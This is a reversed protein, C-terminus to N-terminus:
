TTFDKFIAVSVDPKSAKLNALGEEKFLSLKAKSEIFKYKAFEWNITGLM